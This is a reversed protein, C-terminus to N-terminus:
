RNTGAEAGKFAAAHAMRWRATEQKYGHSVLLQTKDPGHCRKWLNERFPDCADLAHRLTLCTDFVRHPGHGEFHVSYGYRDTTPFFLLTMIPIPYRM